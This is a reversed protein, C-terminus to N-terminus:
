FIKRRKGQGKNDADYRSGREATIQRTGSRRGLCM